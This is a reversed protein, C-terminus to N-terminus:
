PHRRAVGAMVEVSHTWGELNEALWSKESEKEGIFIRLYCIGTVVRVGMGQLHAYAQHINRPSVDLISKTLDPLYGWPSVKVLLDRMHDHLAEFTGGMVADDAYWPQMTHPHATRLDCILPLTRIGYTIMALPDGQTVGEKRHFLHCSDDENRM